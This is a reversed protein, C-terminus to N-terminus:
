RGFHGSCCIYQSQKIQQEIANLLNTPLICRVHKKQDIVWNRLSDGLVGQTLAGIPDGEFEENSTKKENKLFKILKDVANNKESLTYTGFLLFINTKKNRSDRYAILKKILNEAEQKNNDTDNFPYKSKLLNENNNIGFCKKKVQIFKEYSLKLQRFNYSLWPYEICLKVYNVQNKFYLEAIRIAESLDNSCENITNNNLENCTDDFIKKLLILKDRDANAAQAARSLTTTQFKNKDAKHLMNRPKM